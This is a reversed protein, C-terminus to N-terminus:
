WFRDYEIIHLTQMVLKANDIGGDLYVAGIVAELTDARVRPSVFGGQSRNCNICATLGTEDCKSIFRHNNVLRQVSEDTEGVSRNTTYGDLKIVLAAVADGVVALGKNGQTLKRGNLAAVDSGTAQLAEWLLDEDQFKYNLVQQAIHLKSARDVANKTDSCPQNFSSSTTTPQALQAPSRLVSRNTPCSSSSSQPRSLHLPQMSLPPQKGYRGNRGLAATPSPHFRRHGARRPIAAKLM